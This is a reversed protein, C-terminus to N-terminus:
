SDGQETEPVPAQWLATEFIQGIMRASFACTLASVAGGACVAVPCQGPAFGSVQQVIGPLLLNSQSQSSLSL